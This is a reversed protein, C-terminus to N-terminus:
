QSPPPSNRRLGEQLMQCLSLRLPLPELVEISAIHSLLEFKFDLTPCLHFAFDVYPEGDPTHGHATERQSPHLPLTRLYNWEGNFTRLRITQPQEGPSPQFAGFMPRFHEEASFDPPLRFAHRTETADLMRDLAYMALYDRGPRHALLYWRQRFLKLCYPELETEYPESDLFKQYRVLLTSGNEMARTVETLLLDGSPVNELVIRSQLHRSERVAGAVSMTSLMWRQLTNGRLSGKDAISYTANRGRSCAIEIDFMEEIAGLARYFAKRDLPMGDNSPSHSWLEAIEELTVPQRRRITDLIWIYSRFLQSVKIM